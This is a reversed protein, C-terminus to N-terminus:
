AKCLTLEYYFEQFKPPVGNAERCLCDPPIFSIKFNDASFPMKIWKFIHIM